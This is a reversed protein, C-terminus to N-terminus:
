VSAAAVAAGGGNGGSVGACGRRDRLSVGRGRHGPRGSRWAEPVESVARRMRAGEGGDVGESAFSDGHVVDVWLQGVLVGFTTEVVQVLCGFLCAPSPALYGASLSM